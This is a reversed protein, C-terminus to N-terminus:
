ESRGWFLRLPTKLSALEAPSLAPSDELRPLLARVAPRALRRRVGAAIAHRLPSPRVVVRDVFRVAEGHSALTLAGRIARREELTSEAGGPSAVFLGRVLEPHDIALRLAALGGLSNGYVIAPEDLSADLASALA